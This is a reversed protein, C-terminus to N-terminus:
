VVRRADLMVIYPKGGHVPDIEQAQSQSIVADVPIPASDWGIWAEKMKLGACLLKEIYQPLQIREIDKQLSEARQPENRLAYSTVKDVIPKVHNEYASIRKRRFYRKAKPNDSSSSSLKASEFLSKGNSGGPYENEHEILIPHGFADESNKYAIGGKYSADLFNFLSIRESLDPLFHARPNDQKQHNQKWTQMM